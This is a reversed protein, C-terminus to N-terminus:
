AVLPLDRAYSRNMYGGGSSTTADSKLMNTEEASPPETLKVLESNLLSRKREDLCKFSKWDFLESAELLAKGLAMKKGTSLNHYFLTGQTKLINNVFERQCSQQEEIATENMGNGCLCLRYFFYQNYFTGPLNNRDLTWQFLQMTKAADWKLHQTLLLMLEFQAENNEGSTGVINEYLRVWREDPWLDWIHVLSVNQVYVLNKEQEPYPIEGLNQADLEEQWRNKEAGFIEKHYSDFQRIMYILERLGTARNKDAHEPDRWAKFLQFCASWFNTKDELNNVIQRLFDTPFEEIFRDSTPPPAEEFNGLLRSKIYSKAATKDKFFRRIIQQEDM